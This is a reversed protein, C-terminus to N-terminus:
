GGTKPAPKKFLAEDVPVDVQAETLTIDVLPSGNQMVKTKFPVQVGQVARYDGYTAETSNSGATFAVKAPLHSEADFFFQTAHGEADAVEVGETRKGNVEAAPLPKATMGPKDYWRLVELGYYQEQRLAETQDMVQGGASVWGTTGDFAQVMPGFPLQLESRSKDPFVQYSVVSPLPMAKQAGPPTITGAGKTVQSKQAAFAKGGLAACAKKLVERAAQQDGAGVAAVAPKPKRLDARLLDLEAAPITEFKGYKKELDDHFVKANGALVMVMTEPHIREKAFRQVDAPSVADIKQNYSELFERGYGYRLAELVKDAIGDATEIELPFAGSIFTKAATLEPVPVPEKQLGRLVDIMLGLAEVTSETKTFTTALFPGPLQTAIISSGAGYSLGRKMRIEQYLRSDPGSGVIGDYAQAAFYDPDRFPIGIQGVRIETQVADPKDIVLLLPKDRRPPAAQPFPSEAGKPWAGFASEVRKLAEEPRVDGVVALISGNPIYLHHHFAVLDDRSLGKLSDATGETPNGYPHEGHILRRLAGTALYSASGQQIQLNSLSQKRWRDLEDQPFTPRLVADALLELGLDIQDSTVLANVYSSDVGASANLSGGVFDIAAAIQQADRQGAGKTLLSATAQALGAKGGPDFVRGARLLLRLSVAPQEHQEVVVVQLGNPLSKQVFSPFRVEKLPAPPPPTQKPKKAEEAWGAAAHLGLALLAAAAILIRSPLIRSPLTRSPRQASV